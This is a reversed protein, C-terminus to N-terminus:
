EMPDAINKWPAVIDKIYNTKRLKAGFYSSELLYKDLDIWNVSYTQTPRNPLYVATLDCKVGALCDDDSAVFPENKFPPINIMTYIYRRAKIMEDSGIGTARVGFTIRTDESKITEFPFYGKTLIKYYFYEPELFEFDSRLVPYEGQFNWDMPSNNRMGFPTFRTYEYEIVSGIKANPMTIKMFNVDKSGKEFIIDNKSAESDGDWNHTVAKIGRIDESVTGTYMPLTITAENLADSKLIKKQFHYTSVIHFGGSSGDLYEVKSDCSEYIVVCSATTDLEYSTKGLHARDYNGFKVLQGQCFYSAFLFFLLTIKNMLFSM